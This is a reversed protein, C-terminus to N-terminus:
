FEYCYFLLISINFKHNTNKFYKKNPKLLTTFTFLMMLVCTYSM